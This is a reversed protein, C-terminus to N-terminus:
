LEFKGELKAAQERECEELWENQVKVVEASNACAAYRDLLNRVGFSTLLFRQEMQLLLVSQCRLICSGM